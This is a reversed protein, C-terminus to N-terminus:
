KKTTTIREDRPKEVSASRIASNTWTLIHIKNSTEHFSDSQNNYGVRLIYTHIHVCLLSLTSSEKRRKRHTKCFSSYFISGKLVIIELFFTRMENEETDNGNSTREARIENRVCNLIRSHQVMGKSICKCWCRSKYWFCVGVSPLSVVSKSM